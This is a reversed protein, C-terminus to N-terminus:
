HSIKGSRMSTCRMIERGNIRFRTAGCTLHGASPPRGFFGNKTRMFTELVTLSSTGRFNKGSSSEPCLQTKGTSTSTSCPRLTIGTSISGSKLSLELLVLVGAFMSFTTTSTTLSSCLNDKIEQGGGTAIAIWIWSEGRRFTLSRQTRSQSTM